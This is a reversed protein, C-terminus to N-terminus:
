AEEDKKKLPEACLQGMKANRKFIYECTAHNPFDQICPEHEHKLKSFADDDEFSM